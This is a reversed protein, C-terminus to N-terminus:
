LEHRLFVNELVWEPAPLSDKQVIKCFPHSFFTKGCETRFFRKGASRAFFDNERVRASHSFFTKGCGHVFHMLLVYKILNEYFNMARYIQFKGYSFYLSIWNKLQLFLTNMGINSASTIFLITRLEHPFQRNRVRLLFSSCIM